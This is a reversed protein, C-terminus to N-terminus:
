VAEGGGRCYLYGSIATALALVILTVIAAIFLPSGVSSIQEMFVDACGKTHGTCSEPIKDKAFDEPGNFGCCKFEKQFNNIEDLAEQSGDETYKRYKEQIQDRIKNPYFKVLVVVAIVVVCIIIMAIFFVGLLCKSNKQAGCCGIGAIVMIICGVIIILIAVNTINDATLGDIKLAEIAKTIADTFTKKDALAWSGVGVCVAALVAIIANFICFTTQLCGYAM